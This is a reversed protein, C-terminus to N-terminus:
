FRTQFVVNKPKFHPWIQLYPRGVWVLFECFYGGGPTLPLTYIMDDYDDSLIYRQIIWKM